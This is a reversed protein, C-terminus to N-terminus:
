AFAHEAKDFAASIARSKFGLAELQKRLESLEEAEVSQIYEKDSDSEIGWLGGSTITQSLGDALTIDAEAQIGIFGWQGRHLSEMREYDQRVYKRVDEPSNEPLAEGYKDVYNSSPNFYRYQNSEAGGGNCDCQQAEDQAVRLIDMTDEESQVEEDSVAESHMSLHDIASELTEVATRHNYEQRACDESHKRDISFESTPKSAYEGYYSTDLYTDTLHKVVVALIRKVNKM